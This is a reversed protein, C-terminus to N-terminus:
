ALLALLEALTVLNAGTRAAFEKAQPLRCDSIYTARGRDVTLRDRPFIVPEGSRCVQIDVELGDLVSLSRTLAYTDALRGPDFRALVVPRAADAATGGYRGPSLAPGRHALITGRSM